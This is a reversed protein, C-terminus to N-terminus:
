SRFNWRIGVMPSEAGGYESGSGSMNIQSQINNSIVLLELPTILLLLSFLPSVYYLGCPLVTSPPSLSPPVIGWLISGVERDELVDRFVLGVLSHRCCSAWCRYRGLYGHAPGKLIAQGTERHHRLNRCAEAITRALRELVM